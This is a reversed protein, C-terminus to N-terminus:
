TQMEESRRLYAIITGLTLLITGFWLVNMFPKCSVEVLLRDPTAAAQQTDEKLGDIHLLIQKEDANLNELRIQVKGPNVLNLEAPHSHRQGNEMVLAPTATYEKGDKRLVLKAGIQFAQRNEHSSMDFALFEVEYDGFARTQGKTLVLHNEESHTNAVQKQLPSIYLDTFVGRKVHPERMESRTYNNHYLRPKAKFTNNGQQVDIIMGNKGDPRNFDQRYKLQMGMVEVEQGRPLMVRQERSFTGSIVIGVFMIGLGVHSVSAAVGRWGRRWKQIGVLLNSTLGFAAGGIFLLMALGGLGQFLSILMTGIGVFASILVRKLVLNIAEKKWNLYPAIGLLLAMIIGLPLNVRNYFSIDVQSAQGVIGSLIPSSTGILTLFASVLLLWVTAVLTNEKTLSSYDIKAYPITRGRYLLLGIGFFITIVQYIILYGNIGLNTFSHVSFDALVGSRTLFTAYLVLVFSVITLTLSTKHLANNRRTVILSHFLALVALWAILSSNEVPDWGWYGGWGLVEYAWFAGIIIGAGLTVSAFLTWPFAIPVWKKFDGKILAAIAIVFPLTVAAYGLFLIPPHIVMWFNQLLPNLGAGQPPTQAMLKFPSAKILLLLFAINVINLFVMSWSEFQRATRILFLGMIALMLTWFLFSGEQGAWFASTLLGINLDSSSYRYVYEFQFQHSFILYWLYVSAVGVMVTMVYYMKRALRRYFDVQENAKKQKSKSGDKIRTSSYYFIASLLAALLAIYISFSGLM